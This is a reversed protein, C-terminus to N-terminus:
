GLAGFILGRGAIRMGALPDTPVGTTISAVPNVCVVITFNSPTFAASKVTLESVCTVATTGVPAFVPFIVTVVAPPLALLLVLKVTLENLWRRHGLWQSWGQRM